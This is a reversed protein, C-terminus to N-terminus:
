ERASRKDGRRPGDTLISEPRWESLYGVAVEAEPGAAGFGAEAERHGRTGGYGRRLM